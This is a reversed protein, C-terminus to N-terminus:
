LKSELFSQGTMRELELIDKHIASRRELAEHELQALEDQADLVVLLSHIGRRYGDTTENELQKALPLLDAQTSELYRYNTQIRGLLSRARVRLQERVLRQQEFILAREAQNAEITGQNPNSLQLPMSAQLVLGADNLQNNYRVGVGVNLDASADAKVAKVKAALLRESDLLRLFEPAQNVAQEIDAQSPIDFSQYFDGIVGTFSPEAAWMASLSSRAEKLKGVIEESQVAVQRQQLLVRTAESKPVAGSEIRENVIQMANDLRQQQQNNWEALQQLRVVEYYRHATEALVEIKEYNFEAALQRQRATAYEVRRERKEGLEILQSFSLTTQASDFGQSDGSGAFNEVEVGVVPNPRLSAQLKEAEAMRQKYPYKQLNPNDQLAKEFAERLSLENAIAPYSTVFLGMFVAIVFYLLKM